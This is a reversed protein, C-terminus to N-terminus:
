IKLNEYKTEKETMEHKLHKQITAFKEVNEDLQAQVTELHAKLEQNLAREREAIALAAERERDSNEKQETLQRVLETENELSEETMKIHKRLSTLKNSYMEVQRELERNKKELAAISSWQDTELTRTPLKHQEIELKSPSHLRPVNLVVTSQNPSSIRNKTTTLTIALTDNDNEEITLTNIDAKRQDHVKPDIEHANSKRSILASKKIENDLSHFEDALAGSESTLSYRMIDDIDSNEEDGIDLYSHHSGFEDEDEIDSTFSHASNHSRSLHSTSGGNQDETRSKVHDITSSKIM